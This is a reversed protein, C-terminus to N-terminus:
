FGIGPSAWEQKKRLEEDHGKWRGARAIAIMQQECRADLNRIRKKLGSHGLRSKGIDL